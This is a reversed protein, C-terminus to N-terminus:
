RRQERAVRRQAEAVAKLGFPDGTEILREADVGNRLFDRIDFGHSKAWLMIGTGCFGARTCDTPTVILRETM